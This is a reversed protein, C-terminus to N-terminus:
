SVSLTEKCYLFKSHLNFTEVMAVNFPRKGQVDRFTFQWPRVLTYVLIVLRSRADITPTGSNWSFYEGIGGDGASNGSRM